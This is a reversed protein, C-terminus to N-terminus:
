EAMDGSSDAIPCVFVGLLWATITAGGRSLNHQEGLFRAVDPQEFLATAPPERGPLLWLGLWAAAVFACLFASITLSDTGSLVVAGIGGPIITGLYQAVAYTGRHREGPQATRLGDVCALLGGAVVLAVAILVFGIPTVPAAATNGAPTLIVIPIALLILLAALLATWGRRRGLRKLGPPDFADLFPAFAIRALSVTGIVIVPLAILYGALNAGPLFRLGALSQGAPAGVAMGFCLFAAARQWIETRSGGGDRDDTDAGSM